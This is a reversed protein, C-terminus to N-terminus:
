NRPLVATDRNYRDTGPGNLTSIQRRATRPPREARIGKGGRAISGASSLAEHGGVVKAADGQAKRAGLLTGVHARGIEAHAAPYKAM